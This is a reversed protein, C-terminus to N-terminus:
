VLCEWCFGYIIISVYGKFDIVSTPNADNFVTVNRKVGNVTESSVVSASAGLNVYVPSFKGMADVPPSQDFRFFSFM